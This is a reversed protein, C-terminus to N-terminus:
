GVAVRLLSTIAHSEKRGLLSPTLLLLLHVLIMVGMESTRSDLSIEFATM